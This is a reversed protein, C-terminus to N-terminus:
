YRSVLRAENLPTKYALIGEAMFERQVDDVTSQDIRLDPYIDYRASARIINVPQRTYKAYAALADPALYGSGQLEGAATRCAVMAAHALDIKNTLNPGFFIGSGSIGAPPFGITRALNERAFAETFPSSTFVADIAKRQLAVAQDPNAINVSEIDHLTLGAPHLIRAIYYSSVAGAGGIWGIKKGRLAALKRTGSQWLDERVMLASPHGHKPQYATSAVFRVDLDRAVANYFAASLAAAILDLRGAAALAMADQGAVIPTLDADFGEEKFYGREAAVFVPAFLTSPVYGIELKTLGAAFASKAATASALAGFLFSRRSNM